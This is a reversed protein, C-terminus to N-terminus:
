ERMARLKYSWSPLLEETAAWLGVNDDNPDESPTVWGTTNAQRDLEILITPANEKWESSGGRLSFQDALVPPQVIWGQEPLPHPRGQVYAIQADWIDPSLHMSSLMVPKFAEAPRSDLQVEGKVWTTVAASISGAVPPSMRVESSVHLDAIKGKVQLILDSGEVRPTCTIPAGQYLQGDSWFVPLLIVSTGWGSAPGSVLRIYSDNLHLAGYQSSITESKYSIELVDQKLTLCWPKTPCLRQDRLGVRDQFNSPDTVTQRREL